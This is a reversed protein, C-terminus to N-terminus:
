LLTIRTIMTLIKEGNGIDLFLFAFCLRHSVLDTEVQFCLGQFPMKPLLGM